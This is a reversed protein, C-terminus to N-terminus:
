KIVIKKVYLTGKGCIRLFYIGKVLNGPLTLQYPKEMSVQESIKTGQLDWLEFTLRHEPMGPMEVFVVNNSKVPNPWVRCYPLSRTHEISTSVTDRPPHLTDAPVQTTDTPNQVTDIVNADPTFLHVCALFIDFRKETLNFSKGAVYIKSTDLNIASSLIVDTSGQVDFIHEGVNGIFSNVGGNEHLFKMAANGNKDKGSIILKGNRIETISYGNDDGNTTFDYFNYSNTGFTYDLDGNPKASLVFMDTGITYGTKRLDGGFLINGNSLVKFDRFDLDFGNNFNYLSYGPYHSDTGFTSDITGDPMLRTVDFYRTANSLLNFQGTVLIKNNPLVELKTIYHNSGYTNLYTVAKGNNFNVDGEKGSSLLRIVFYNSLSNPVSDTTHGALIYAWNGNNDKNVEIQSLYESNHLALDIISLGSHGFDSDVSGNSNLRIVFGKEAPEFNGAICIKGDEHVLIDKAVADRNGIAHVLSGSSAFSNDLSGDTNYRQVFIKKQGSHSITGAVVIKEDNQVEVFLSNYVLEAAEIHIGNVAFSSDLMGPTQGYVGFQLGLLIFFISLKKV